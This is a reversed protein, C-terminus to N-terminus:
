YFFPNLTKILYNRGGNWDRDTQFNCRQCHFNKNTFRPNNVHGCKGCTITTYSENGVYVDCNPYQKDKNLLRQKFRYHSWTYM